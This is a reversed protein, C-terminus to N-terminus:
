ANRENTSYKNVRWVGILILIGGILSALYINEGLLYAALIVAILPELYLFVGV